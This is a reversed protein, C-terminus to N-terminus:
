IIILLVLNMKQDRLDKEATNAETAVGKITIDAEEAEIGM